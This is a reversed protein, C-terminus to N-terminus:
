FSGGNITIIDSSLATITGSASINGSATVAGSLTIPTTGQRGITIPNTANNGILLGIVGSSAVHKGNSEYEDASIDGSASINGSATIHSDVLLDGGLHVDALPTGIGNTGIKNTNADAHFLPNNSTGKVVFDIDNTGENVTVEKQGSSGDFKIYTKSQVKFLSSSQNFTLYNNYAEDGYYRNAFINGSASIDGSSTISGNFKHSDDASDGFVTSGSSVSHVIISESVIYSQAIVAGSAKINGDVTLKEDPTATGIGVRDNGADSAILNNDNDGRVFFDQFNSNNPNVTIAAQEIKFGPSSHQAGMQIDNENFDIRTNVQDKHQIENSALLIHQNPSTLKIGGDFIDLSGTIEHLGGADILFKQEAAGTKNAVSFILDAQIGAQTVSSVVGKIVATEGTTRKNYGKLSGSEAIWRISGLTDGTQPPNILGLKEGKSLISAQTDPNFANFATVAAADDAVVQGTIAFLNAATIPIGRSFNLIFESGTAASSANKDFSEINGEENIKLGKQESVRQIQFENARIDVNTLPDKTGIGLKLVAPSNKSASVYLPILDEESGVSQSPVMMEFSKKDVPDIRQILSASAEPVKGEFFSQNKVGSGSQIINYSFTNPSSGIKFSSGIMMGGVQVQTGSFDPLAVSSSNKSTIQFKGEGGDTLNNTGLSASNRIKFGSGIAMNGISATISTLNSGDNIQSAEFNKNFIPIKNLAEVTRYAIIFSDDNSKVPIDIITDNSLTDSFKLDISEEDENKPNTKRFIGPENSALSSSNIYRLILRKDNEGVSFVDDTSTSGVNLTIIGFANLTTLKTLRNNFNSSCTIALIQPISASIATTSDTKSGSPIFVISGSDNSINIQNKNVSYITM